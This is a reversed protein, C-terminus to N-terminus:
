INDPLISIARSPPWPSALAYAVSLVPNITMKFLIPKKHLMRPWDTSSPSLETKRAHTIEFTPRTDGSDLDLLQSAGIARELM